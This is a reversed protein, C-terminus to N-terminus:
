INENQHKKFNNLLSLINKKGDHNASHCTFIPLPKENSLCYEVLWKACDMGTKEMSGFREQMEEATLKEWDEPKFGYHFDALDHDFSIARPLGRQEIVSVFETYNKAWYIDVTNIPHFARYDQPDRIDDLWLLTNNQLLVQDAMSKCQERVYEIDRYIAHEQLLPYELKFIGYFGPVFDEYHACDFGIWWDGGDEQRGQFTVGGHVYIANGDYIDEKEYLPNGIPIAVYGCYAGMHNRVILCKLGKYEFEEKDPEGEMIKRVEEITM